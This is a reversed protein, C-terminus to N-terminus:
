WTKIVFVICLEESFCSCGLLQSFTHINVILSDSSCQFSSCSHLHPSYPKNNYKTGLNIILQSVWRKKRESSSLNIVLLNWLSPTFWPSWILPTHLYLTHRSHVKSPLINPPQEISSITSPLELFLIWPSEPLLVLCYWLPVRLSSSFLLPLPQVAYQDLCSEINYTRM